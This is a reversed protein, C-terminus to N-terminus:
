KLGREDKYKYRRETIYGKFMITNTRAVRKWDPYDSNVLDLFDSYYRFDNELILGFLCDLITEDDYPSQIYEFVKDSFGNGGIIKYPDYHYKKKSDMHALYRVKSRLESFYRARVAGIRDFYSKATEFSQAQEFILYVHYHPKKLKGIDDLSYYDSNQEVDLKSIIDSDHLPSVAFKIGFDELIDLWDDSCSDLYLVSEWNRKDGKSAM